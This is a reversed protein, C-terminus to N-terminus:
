YLYPQGEPRTKFLKFSWMYQAPDERIMSELVANMHATDAMVDESPFDELPPHIHIHYLGTQPDLRTIYPLVVADGLKALRGLMPVTAKSVGFFPAFVAHKPGLDEDPIYYVLTGAKLAKVLPRLGEQRAMLRAGFRTRGHAMWADLFPNGTPNYPGAGGGCAQSLYAAGMDLGVVHGTVVLPARGSALAADLHEQGHVWWRKALAKRSRLWLYGLDLLAQGAREFSQRALRTRGAEDLEPFTLGLNIDVIRRRKANRRMMQRGLWAGLRMRLGVPLWAIIWLVLIGLWMGWYRPHWLAPDKIPAPLSM